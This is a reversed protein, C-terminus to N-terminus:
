INRVLRVYNYIRIADGQPGHGTPFDAPDGTKPDSRQAGAGHVDMWSNMMYGMSRGFSVYVAFGGQNNDTWNEHTTSTWYFAYDAQGAENVIETCNFLPDIAASSTTSPSRTYDVISQLEKTDPLRWDSYGEYEYNEAYILADEWNIGEGNDDQMWMLGTAEDTITGNSNDMFNNVGYNANGRVYLVYFQKDQMQGPMPGTGYGKIRGDALNVGFMTNAGEMTTGAYLTTSAFQADIIREMAGTDGYGFEFVEDDMFPVLDDTSTGEYGSPDVGSFLILSYAEKINPLRWDSHGALNYDDAGDAAESQSMKDDVDVTGDGNLDCSQQWMLGTIMDTVTGDGNDEYRPTNGEYNANQGYFSDGELPASIVAADNTGVIPYDNIDPLNDKGTENNSTKECGIFAVLFLAIVPIVLSTKSIIRM